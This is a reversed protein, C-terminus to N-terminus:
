VKSTAFKKIKQSAVTLLVQENANMMGRLRCYRLGHLEKLNTFKREIKEKRYKKFMTQILINVMIMATILVIRELLFM